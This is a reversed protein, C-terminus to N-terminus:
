IRRLLYLEVAGDFDGGKFLDNGRAKMAAGQEVQDAEKQWESPSRSFEHPEQADAQAAAKTYGAAAGATDGMRLRISAMCATVEPAAVCSGNPKDPVPLLSDLALAPQAGMVFQAVRALVQETARLTRGEADATATEGVPALAVQEAAESLRGLQRLCRAALAHGSWEASILVM